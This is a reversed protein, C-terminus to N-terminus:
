DLRLPFETSYESEAPIVQLATMKASNIVVPARLNVLALDDDLRVLAMWMLKANESADLRARDVPSLEISYKKDILRPDIALFSPSPEDLGQLCTFPAFAPATVVVYRRCKEFGPLGDAMTVVVGADAPFSGFRTSIMESM